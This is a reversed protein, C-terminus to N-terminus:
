TKIELKDPLLLFEEEELKSNSSVLSTFTTCKHVKRTAVFVPTEDEVVTRYATM